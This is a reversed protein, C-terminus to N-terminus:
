ATAPKSGENVSPFFISLFLNKVPNMLLEGFPKTYQEAMKRNILIPTAAFNRKLADAMPWFIFNLKKLRDTKQYLIVLGAFAIIFFVGFIVAM